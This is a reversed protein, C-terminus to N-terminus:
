ITDAWSVRNNIGSNTAAYDTKIVEDKTWFLMSVNAM